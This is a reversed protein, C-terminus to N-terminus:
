PPRCTSQSHRDVIECRTDGFSTERRRGQGGIAITEVDIGITKHHDIPSAKVQGSHARASCIPLRDHQATAAVAIIQPKDNAIIAAREM